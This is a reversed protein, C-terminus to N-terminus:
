SLHARQIKIRTAGSRLDASSQSNHVAFPMKPCARPLWRCDAEASLENYKSFDCGAEM